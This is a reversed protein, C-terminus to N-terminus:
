RSRTGLRATAKKGVASTTPKFADPPEGRLVSNCALSLLACAELNSKARFVSPAPSAHGGKFLRARKATENAARAVTAIPTM